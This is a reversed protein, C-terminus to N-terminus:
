DFWVHIMVRNGGSVIPLVTRVTRTPNQKRWDCFARNLFYPLKWTDAPGTRARFCTWGPGMDDCDILVQPECGSVKSDPGPGDVDWDEFPRLGLAAFMSPWLPDDKAAAIHSIMARFEAQDGADLAALCARSKASMVRFWEIDIPPADPEDRARQEADRITRGCGAILKQLFGIRQEVLLTAGKVNAWTCWPPNLDLACCQCGGSVLLRRALNAMPMM